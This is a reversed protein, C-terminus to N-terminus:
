SLWEETEPLFHVLGELIGASYNGNMGLVGGRAQYFRGLTGNARSMELAQRRVAASANAVLVSPVDSALVEIDNGSDGAFVTRESRFGRRAMLFEIAALKGAARPVIDLL